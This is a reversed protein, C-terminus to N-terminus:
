FGGASARAVQFGLSFKPPIAPVCKAQINTSRCRHFNPTAL